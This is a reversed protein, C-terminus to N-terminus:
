IRLSSVQEENPDTTWPQSLGLDAGGLMGGYFSQEWKGGFEM